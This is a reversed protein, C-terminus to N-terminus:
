MQPGNEDVGGILLAVGFPRSQFIFLCFFTLDVVWPSSLGIQELELVSM